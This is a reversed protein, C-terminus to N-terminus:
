IVLSWTRVHLERVPAPGAYLPNISRYYLVFKTLPRPKSNIQPAESSVVHMLCCYSCIKTGNCYYVSGHSRTEEFLIDLPYTSLFYEM